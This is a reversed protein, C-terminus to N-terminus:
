LTGIHELFSYNKACMYLDGYMEEFEDLAERHVRYAKSRKLGLEAAVEKMTEGKAYRRYLYAPSNVGTLSDVQGMIFQYQMVYGQLDKDMDVVGSMIECLTDKPSTQVPENDTPAVMNTARSRSADIKEARSRITNELWNLRWLYKETTM